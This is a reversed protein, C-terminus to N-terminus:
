AVSMASSPWYDIIYLAILFIPILQAIALCYAIADSATMMTMFSLTHGRGTSPPLRKTTVDHAGLAVATSEQTGDRGSQRM